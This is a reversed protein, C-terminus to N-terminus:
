VWRPDRQELAAVLQKVEQARERPCVLTAGGAQVVVLGRVGILAILAGAEAHVICDHADQVHLEGEGSALNGSPDGALVESLAAVHRWFDKDGVQAADVLKAHVHAMNGPVSVDRPQLATFYLRALQGSATACNANDRSEWVSRFSMLEEPAASTPLKRLCHIVEWTRAPSLPRDFLEM